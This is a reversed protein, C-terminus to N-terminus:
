KKEPALRYLGESVRETLGDRTSNSLTASVTGLKAKIGLAVERINAGEPKDKLFLLMRDQVTARPTSVPFYVKDGNDFQVALESGLIRGAREVVLKFDFHRVYLFRGNGLPVTKSPDNRLRIWGSPVTKGVALIRKVLHIFVDSWGGVKVVDEIGLRVSIPQAHKKEIPAPTKILQRTAEHAKKEAALEQQTRSVRAQAEDLLKKLRTNESTYSNKHGSPCFFEAGDKQRRDCFEAPIGFAVACTACQILTMQLVVGISSGPVASVM